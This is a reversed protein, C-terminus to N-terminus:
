RKALAKRLEKLYAEDDRITVVKTALELITKLDLQDLKRLSSSVRKGFRASLQTELISRSQQEIGEQLIEDYLDTGTLAAKGGIHSVLRESDASRSPKEYSQSSPKTM